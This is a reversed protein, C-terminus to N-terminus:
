KALEKWINLLLQDSLGPCKPNFFITCSRFWGIFNVNQFATGTAEYISPKFYQKRYELGSSIQVFSILKNKNGLQLKTTGLERDSICYLERNEILDIAAFFQINSMKAMLSKVAKKNVAFDVLSIGLIKFIM